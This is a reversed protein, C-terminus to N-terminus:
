RKSLGGSDMLCRWRGFGFAGGRDVMVDEKLFRERVPRTGVGESSGSAGGGQGGEVMM